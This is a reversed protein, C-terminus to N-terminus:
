VDPYIYELISLIRIEPIIFVHIHTHVHTHAGPHLYSHTHTLM